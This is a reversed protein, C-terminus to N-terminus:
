IPPSIKEDSPPDGDSNRKLVLEWNTEQRLSFHKISGASQRKNLLHTTIKQEANQVTRVVSRDLQRLNRAHRYHYNKCLETELYTDLKKTSDTDIYLAYRFQKNHPEPTIMAFRYQCPLNKCIREAHALSIKEGVLDSTMNNRTLFRLRPTRHFFGDVTVLDNTQYRYLGGGTTLILHYVQGQEIEWLPLLKGTKQSVFEYYHSRLATINSNAGLPLSTIGETAILGKPQISTSPFITQLQDVWPQSDWCSIIKLKKWIKSPVCNIERLQRARRPSTNEVTQLLEDFRTELTQFMLTLLSPHWVSILRLDPTNLLHVLTNFEDTQQPVALTHRAVFQQLRGLYAADTDFGIPVASEQEIPTSPTICWYHRGLLLSPWKLFLGAIWPDIARQFEKKLSPTYPILKTGSTSGGTPELLLPAERTLAHIEGRMIKGINQFLDEYNQLPLNQFDSQSLYSNRLIRRLTNKQAQKPSFLAIRFQIWSPLASLLWLLNCLLIRM